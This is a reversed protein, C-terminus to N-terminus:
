LANIPLTNLMPAGVGKYLGSLKEEKLIKFLSSLITKYENKYLQMRCKTMDLPYSVSLGFIGSISGSILDISWEM